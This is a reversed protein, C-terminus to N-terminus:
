MFLLWLEYFSIFFVFNRIKATGNFNSKKKISRLRFFKFFVQVELKKNEYGINLYKNAFDSHVIASRDQHQAYMCYYIWYVFMHTSTLPTKTYTHLGIIPPTVVNCQKIQLKM